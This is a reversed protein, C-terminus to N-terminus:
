ISISISVYKAKQAHAIRRMAWYMRIYLIEIQRWRDIKRYLAIYIYIFICIESKSCPRDHGLVYTYISHRDTEM